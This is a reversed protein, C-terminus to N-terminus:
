EPRSKLILISRDDGFLAGARGKTSAFPGIRDPDVADAHALAAEWSAVSPESAMMPYGDSFIELTDIEALPIDRTLVAGSLDAYGDPVQANFAAPDARVARLGGDLAHELTDGELPLDRLLEHNAVGTRIAELDADTFPPRAPQALGDVILARSAARVDETAMGRETLLAWALSRAAAFISDAPFAHQLCHAGNIRITCDGVTILRMTQGDSFAAAMAARFRHEGNLVLDPAIELREYVAAISRNAADLVADPEPLGATRSIDNLAEAIARAALRGGTANSGLRDDYRRGSIDTAGDAVAYFVGPVLAIQDENTDPLAQNKACSFAEIYFM